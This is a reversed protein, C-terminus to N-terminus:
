FACMAISASHSRNITTGSNDMTPGLECLGYYDSSALGAPHLGALIQREKNAMGVYVFYRGVCSVCFIASYSYGRGRGASVGSMLRMLCDKASQAVDDPRLIGLNVRSGVPIAASFGASGEGVNTYHVCRVEPVGDDPQGKRRVLVPLPGYQMIADVGSVRDKPAIGQSKLYDCFTMEDVTKVINAEAATVMPGYEAMTTITNGVAFVPSIEGGVLLLVLRDRMAEGNAFVYAPASILDGTCVGGFVPVGGSIDFLASVMGATVEGPILPIYPIILRPEGGLAASAREYVDRMQEAARAADLEDSVAIGVRMKNNSVLALSASVPTAEGGTMPFALTTGGIVPFNVSAAVLKLVAGYDISASCMLVGLNISDADRLGGLLQRAILDSDEFETATIAANMM